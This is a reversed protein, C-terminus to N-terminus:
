DQQTREVNAIEKQYLLKIGQSFIDCPEISHERLAKWLPRDDIRMWFAVRRPLFQQTEARKLPKQM